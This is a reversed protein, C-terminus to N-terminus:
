HEAKTREWRYVNLKKGTVTLEITGGLRECENELDQLHFSRSQDVTNEYCRLMTWPVPGLLGFDSREAAVMGYDTGIYICIHNHITNFGILKIRADEITIINKM